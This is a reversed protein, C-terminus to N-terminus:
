RHQAAPDKWCRIQTVTVRDRHPNGVSLGVSVVVSVGLTVDVGAGLEAGAELVVDEGVSSEVETLGVDLLGDSVLSGVVVVGSSGGYTSLVPYPM